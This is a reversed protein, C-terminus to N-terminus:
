LQDLNQARALHSAGEERLQNKGLSLVRLKGLFRSEKLYLASKETLGADNVYLKYLNSLYSAITLHRFGEDTILNQSLDLVTLSRM